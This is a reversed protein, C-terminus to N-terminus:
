RPIGRPVFTILDQGVRSGAHSLLLRIKDRAPDWTPCFYDLKTGRPIGRPVFTISNQGAHSLLLRIKDRAPDWTPCFYDLKTGRPIGRPVFTISNQGAYSLTSNLPPSNFFKQRFRLSDQLKISKRKFIWM